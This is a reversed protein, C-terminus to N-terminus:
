SAKRRDAGANPTPCPPPLRGLPDDGAAPRHVEDRRNRLRLLPLPRGRLLGSQHEVFPFPKRGPPLLVIMRADDVANAQLDLAPPAYRICAFPLHGRLGGAQQPVPPALRKLPRRGKKQWISATSVATQSLSTAGRLRPPLSNRLCRCFAVVVGVGAQLPQRELQGRAGALGGDHGHQDGPLGDVRRAPGRLPLNVRPKRTTVGPMVM